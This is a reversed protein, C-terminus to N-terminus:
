ENYGLFTLVDSINQLFVVHANVGRDKRFCKPNESNIVGATETYLNYRNTWAAPEVRLKLDVNPMKALQGNIKKVREKLEELETM